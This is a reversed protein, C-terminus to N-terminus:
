EKPTATQDSADKENLLDFFTAESRTLKDTFLDAIDGILNLTDLTQFVAKKMSEPATEAPLLDQFQAELNKKIPNEENKM